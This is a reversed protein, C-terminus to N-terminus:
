AQCNVLFRRHSSTDAVCFARVTGTTDPAHDRHLRLVVELIRLSLRQYLSHLFLGALERLLAVLKVGLRLHHNFSEQTEPM